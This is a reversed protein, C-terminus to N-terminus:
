KKSGFAIYHNGVIEALWTNDLRKSLPKIWSFIRVRVNRRIPVKRDFLIAPPLVGGAFVRINTLGASQLLHEVDTKKLKNEYFFERSKRAIFRGIFDLSRMLSFKSPLIDSYFLGESKLLRVMEDVIPQPNKFHELLGTSMVVDYSGDKFPLHVADGLIFEGNNNTQIFNNKAVKLANKSYDLGVINYGYSALFCSLRASGCGVELIKACPPKGQLFSLVYELKITDGMYYLEDPSMTYEINKWFTNWYDKENKKKTM